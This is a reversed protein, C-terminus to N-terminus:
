PSSASPRPPTWLAAWSPTSSTRHTEPGRPQHGAVRDRCLRRRHKGPLDGHRDIGAREHPQAGRHLLAGAPHLCVPGPGPAPHREPVPLRRRHPHHAAGQPGGPIGPAGDPIGGASLQPDAQLGKGRGPGGALRDATTQRLGQGGRRGAGAPHRGLYRRRHRGRRHVSSHPQQPVQLEGGSTATIKEGHAM